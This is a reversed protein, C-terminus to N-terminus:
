EAPFFFINFSPNGSPGQPKTFLCASSASFVSRKEKTDKHCFFKGDEM